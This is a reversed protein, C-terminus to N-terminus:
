DYRLETAKGRFIFYSLVTYGAIAPLVFLTGVLIIMLSEPASAADYITIQEPVVYPYFSYALGGYALVFLGTAAAFPTWAWRDDVFPLRRLKWWLYGVLAMSLIPLPSLYGIEPWSFWKEFIRFSVFPTALSIAGIGLILGWIGGKAWRVAHQQLDGDTKWILWAAGIFSYGVTLFVATLVAFGVHPLTWTLGMIYMGLMFGQSLSALLSGAFFAGNWAAKQSLPAKARMEFSVGRLILGILMVFVPLYLATLIAGHAPPFAVLLLGVALVLWTENADWFPGISAVLRDKEDDNALPMLLGVGLDFGDLVVYILISLGMLAAFTWPLWVAPDGFLDM